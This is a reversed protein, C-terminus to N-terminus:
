LRRAFNLVPDLDLGTLRRHLERNWAKIDLLVLSITKLDNDALREGLFGNTDLATHIGMGQAASFLKLVFRHQLLPEGGSVTLGGSMIKLGSRYKRLEETARQITTPLGNKIDWTDPNHCFLCQFMCGATWAVLRVGPGDVTSGTVFSHLFGMEGSELAQKIASDSVNKAQDIRLEYPSRAELTGNTPAQEPRM